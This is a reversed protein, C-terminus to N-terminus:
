PFGRHVGRRELHSSGALAHEATRHCLREQWVDFLQLGAVLPRALAHHGAGVCPTFGPVSDRTWQPIVTMLPEPKVTWTKMDKSTMQQIGMGTCYMYYTSDEWAMVPDHVMPAQTEFAVFNRRHGQAMAWACLNMLTLCVILRKM